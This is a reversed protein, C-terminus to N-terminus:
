LWIQLTIHVSLTVCTPPHYNLWFKVALVGAVNVLTVRVNHPLDDIHPICIEQACVGTSQARLM